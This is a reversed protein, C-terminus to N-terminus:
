EGSYVRQFHLPNFHRMYSGGPHVRPTLFDDGYCAGCVISFLQYQICYLFYFPSDRELKRLIVARRSIKVYEKKVHASLRMHNKYIKTVIKIFYRWLTHLCYKVKKTHKLNNSWRKKGEKKYRSNERCIIGLEKCLLACDRRGFERILCKSRTTFEFSNHFLNKWLCGIIIRIITSDIHYHWSISDRSWRCGWCFFWWRWTSSRRISWMWFGIDLNYSNIFCIRDFCVPFIEIGVLFRSFM